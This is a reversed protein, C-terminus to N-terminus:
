TATDSAAPTETISVVQSLPVKVGSISLTVEGDAIEAGTVRGVTGTGIARRDGSNDVATVAVGYIGDPLRNGFNDTGDWTYRYLGAATEGPLTRM